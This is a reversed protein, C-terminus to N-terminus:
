GFGVIQTVQFQDGGVGPDIGPQLPLAGLDDQRGAVDQRRPGALADVDVEGLETEVIGRLVVGHIVVLRQADSAFAPGRRDRLVASVGVGAQYGGFDIRSSCAASPSGSGATTGGPGSLGRPGMFSFRASGPYRIWPEFLFNPMPMRTLWPQKRMSLWLTSSSASSTGTPVGTRMM